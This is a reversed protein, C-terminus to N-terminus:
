YTANSSKKALESNILKKQTLLSDTRQLKQQNKLNM